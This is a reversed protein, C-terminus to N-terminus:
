TDSRGRGVGAPWWASSPERRTGADSAEAPGGQAVAPEDLPLSVIFESGKGKGASEARVTGGHLEAIGKVLALGLGLGGETRALTQEGQTFPEFITELLERDIGAGSDRVHIEAVSDTVELALAVQGGSATFKAANQLLNGIAQSLRIEDGHGWVPARPTEVVLELGREQLLARYDEGSRRVLEALDFDGRRLQIKGRAIRTVDLLDDVLRTLHALQRSAVERARRAQEGGPEARDLIHLSNQIPALPNRLEHSLVGLFEDKRRDAERLQENVRLLEQEARKRDTIDLAGSTLGVLAGSADRAPEVVFDYFRVTDSRVFSIEERAGVGTELVRRKLAMLRRVGESDELEDDRKGVVASADFDPHPNYIWRYRLDRDVQAPVFAANKVAVRFREESARLAEQAARADAEAARALAREASLRERQRHQAGAAFSIVGAFLLFTVLRVALEADPLAWGYRPEIVLFTLGVGILASAVLGATRGIGMALLAVMALPLAFYVGHVAGAFLHASGVAVVVCALTAAARWSPVRV